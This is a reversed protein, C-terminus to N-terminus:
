WPIGAGAKIAIDRSNRQDELRRLRGLIGDTDKPSFWHIFFSHKREHWNPKAFFEELAKILEALDLVLAVAPADVRAAHREPGFPRFFLVRRYFAVHRPNVEIVVHTCGRVIHAFLVATHFLAGLVEKSPATEDVALRTFETLRYGSRRLCDVEEQYLADAPLGAPSDLQVGMTGALVGSNYAAFTYLNPDANASETQYGRWEYRRKVLDSADQLLPRPKALRVRVIDASDPSAALLQEVSLHRLPRAVDSIISLGNTPAALLEDGGAESSRAFAAGELTDENDCPTLLPPTQVTVM